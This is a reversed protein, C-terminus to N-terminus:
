FMHLLSDKKMFSLKRGSLLLTKLPHFQIKHKKKRKDTDMVDEFLFIEKENIFSIIILVINLKEETNLTWCTGNWM